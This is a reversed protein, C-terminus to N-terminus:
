RSAFVSAVARTLQDHHSVAPNNPAAVIDIMNVTDPGAGFAEGAGNKTQQDLVSLM